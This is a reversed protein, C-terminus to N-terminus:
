CIDTALQLPTAYREPAVLEVQDVDENLFRSGVQRFRDPNDSVYCRMSGPRGTRCLGAHKALLQQIALSTERGSDVIHVDPGLSREIAARLLPYHTCGLVAVRVGRERLPTLYTDAVLQVIPDDCGRGEEVLPVFLPCAQSVVELDPVLAHLAAPYSGSASTAETGLVVVAGGEALRAAARAGPEVVGLVPVPLAQELEHLALASATNCAVVILKPEFQLLFRADELAFRVVTQRSKTGYPVRATDGFYVVAENPLLRRLHRVVSLGGLGSDFVAIPNTNM